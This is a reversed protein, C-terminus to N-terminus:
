LKRSLIEARAYHMAADPTMDSQGELWQAQQLLYKERVADAFVASALAKGPSLREDLAGGQVAILFAELMAGLPRRASNWLPDGDQRIGGPLSIVGPETSFDLTCLGMPTELALLRRRDQGNRSLRIAVPVPGAQASVIVQAGGGEIVLSSPMLVDPVLCALIPLVHPLVDDFVTVAPDYAKVEGRVVDSEGDQWTLDLRQIPGYPAVAAAFNELYRAFLFVHSAALQAGGTEARTCLKRVEEAGITMPKEVLVPLGADLAPGAAAAHDCVRNAVIVACPKHAGYEPWGSSVRVRTQLDRVAIWSGVSAANHRSHMVINTASPLSGLVGAVTRAWRGGGIISIETVGKRRENIPASRVM